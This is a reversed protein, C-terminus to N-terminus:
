ALFGQEKGSRLPGLGKRKVEGAFENETTDHVVLAVGADRAREMARKSHPALVAKPDVAENGLFRYVGELAADDGVSNPLSARPNTSFSRVVKALRAERRRDGLKAGEFEARIAGQSEEDLVGDIVPKM